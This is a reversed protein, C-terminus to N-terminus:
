MKSTADMSGLGRVASPIWKASAFTIRAIQDRMKEKTFILSLSCRLLGFLQCLPPCDVFRWRCATCTLHCLYRTILVCQGPPALHTCSHDTSSRAVCGREFRNQVSWLSGSERTPQTLFRTSQTSAHPVRGLQASRRVIGPKSGEWSGGGIKIPQQRHTVIPNPSSPVPSSISGTGGVCV